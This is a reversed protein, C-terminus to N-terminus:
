TRFIIVIVDILVFLKVFVVILLHESLCNCSHWNLKSKEIVGFLAIRHTVQSKFPSM